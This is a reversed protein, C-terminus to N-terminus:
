KNEYGHSPKQVYWKVSERKEIKEKFLVLKTRIVHTISICRANSKIRKFLRKRNINM